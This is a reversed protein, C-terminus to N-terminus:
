AAERYVKSRVLGVLGRANYPKPLFTGDDPLESDKLRQKGSTVIIEVDPRLQHVRRALELGDMDGPMNLDTFLVAISPQEELLVLGEAADGAAFTELGADSLTDEAVMRVLAEDEVILVAATERAPVMGVWCLDPHM